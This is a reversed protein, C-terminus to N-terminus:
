KVMIKKGDKIYIGKSPIGNLRRGSLDFWPSNSDSQEWINKVAGTTSLGLITGFYGWPNTITKNIYKWSRQKLKAIQEDPVYLTANNLPVDAFIEEDYKVFIIQDDKLRQLRDYYDSNKQVCNLINFDDSTTERLYFTKLSVCNSFAKRGIIHLYVYGEIGKGKNIYYFEKVKTNNDIFPAIDVLEMRYCNAFAERAIMRIPGKKVFSRLKYCNSFANGEITELSVPFVVEELNTCNYFAVLKILKIGEPIVLKKLSTCNYCFHYDISDPKGSNLALTELATCNEFMRKGMKELSAPFEATKLSTCEMFASEGIEVLNSPEPIKLSVLTNNGKFAEPAICKVAYSIGEYEVTPPITIEQIGDNTTGKVLAEHEGKHTLDYRIGNIDVNWKPTDSFGYIYKFYTWPEKKAYKNVLHDPVHLTAENNERNNKNRIYFNDTSIEPVDDTYCYLDKLFSSTVVESEINRIKNGFTVTALKNCDRFAAWAITGGPIVVSELSGCKSFAQQGIDCNEPLTVSSLNNCSAFAARGIEKLGEPLEIAKLGSYEFCGPDITKLSNPLKVTELNECRCFGSIPLRTIGESVVLTTLESHYFVYEGLDNIQGPIVVSKLGSNAFCYNGMRTLSEPFTVRELKGDSSTLYYSFSFCYDGIELIGEKMEVSSLKMCVEFAHGPIKKVNGPISVEELGAGMFCSEGLLALSEPLSVSALSCDQFCRNGIFTVGEAIEVSSIKSCNRFAEEGIGVVQYTEGGYTVSSPIVVKGSYPSLDVDKVVPVDGRCVTATKVGGDTGFSYYLGDIFADYDYLGGKASLCCVMMAILLVSNKKM